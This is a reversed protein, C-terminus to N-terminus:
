SDSNYPRDRGDNLDLHSIESVILAHPIEELIFSRGYMKKANENATSISSDRSNM